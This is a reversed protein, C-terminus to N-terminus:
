ELRGPPPADYPERAKRRKVWEPEEAPEQPGVKTEAQTAKTAGEQRRRLRVLAPYTREALALAAEGPSQLSELGTPEVIDRASRVEVTELQGTSQNIATIMHGAGIGAAQRVLEVPPAGQEFLGAAVTGYSHAHRLHDPGTERWYAKPLGDGGTEMGRVMACLQTAIERDEAASGRPLVDLQMILRNASDDLVGTRDLDAVRQERNLRVMERGKIPQNAYFALWCRRPYRKCFERAPTADFAGDVVATRVNFAAMLGDLEEWSGVHGMRLWVHRDGERKGVAFHIRLGGKVGGGPDAGLFCPGESREQQRHSGWLRAILEPDIELGPTTAPQGMVQNLFMEPFKEAAWAAVIREATWPELLARPVRYMSWEASPQGTAVWRGHRIHEAWTLEHGHACIFYPEEVDAAFSAPWTIPREDGCWPCRVMWEQKNSVEWLGSLGFGPVTPTGFARRWAMDSHAVRDQYLRLVDPRSFDVEDHVVLDAPESLAQQGQAAGKFFIISEGDRRLLAKRHINDMGGVKSRLYPSAEIAPRARTQSFEQVAADTHMTYIIRLPRPWTDALGLIEAVGMTTKGIQSGCMFGKQPSRDGLIAPMYPHAAFDLPRGRETRMYEAAWAALDATTSM